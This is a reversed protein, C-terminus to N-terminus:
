VLCLEYNQSYKQVLRSNQLRSLSHPIFINEKSDLIFRPIDM